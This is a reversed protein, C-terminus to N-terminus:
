EFDSSKFRKRLFRLLYRRVSTTCIGFMSSVEELEKGDVISKFVMLELEDKTKGLQTAVTFARDKGFDGLLIRGAPIELGLIKCALKLSCDDVVVMKRLSPTLNTKEL